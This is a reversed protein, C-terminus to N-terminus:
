REIVTREIAVVRCTFTAGIDAPVEGGDVEILLQTIGDSRGHATMRFGEAVELPDTM